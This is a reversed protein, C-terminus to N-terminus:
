FCMSISYTHELGQKWLESLFYHRKLLLPLLWRIVQMLFSRVIPLRKRTRRTWYKTLAKWLEPQQLEKDKELVWKGKSSILSKEQASGGTEQISEPLGQSGRQALAAGGRHWWSQLARGPIAREMGLIPFGFCSGLSHFWTPKGVGGPSPARSSRLYDLSGKCKWSIVFWHKGQSSPPTPSPEGLRPVGWGACCSRQHCQLEALEAGPDRFPQSTGGSDRWRKWM